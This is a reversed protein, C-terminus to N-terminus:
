YGMAKSDKNNIKTKITIVKEKVIPKPIDKVIPKIEEKASKNNSFLNKNTIINEITKGKGEEKAIYGKKGNESRNNNKYERTNFFEKGENDEAHRIYNKIGEKINLKATEKDGDVILTYVNASERKNFNSEGKYKWHGANGILILGLDVLIDNYKLLTTKTIGTDNTITNFSPFCVEARGGHCVLDGEDSSRKYMRSKLYCYYFLLQINDTKVISQNLIKDKESDFLQIFQTPKNEKLEFPQFNAHAFTIPKLDAITANKGNVTINSIINLKELTSLITNVQSNIRKKSTNPKKGMYYIIDEITFTVDSRRSTYTYLYDMVLLVIPNYNTDAIISNGEIAYFLKNPLITYYNKVDSM